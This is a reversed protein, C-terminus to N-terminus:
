PRLRRFEEEEDDFPKKQAMRRSEKLIKLSFIIVVICLAICVGAIIYQM